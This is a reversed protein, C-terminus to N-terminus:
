RRCGPWYDDDHPWLEGAALWLTALVLGLAVLHGIEGRASCSHGPAAIIQTPALTPFFPAAVAQMLFRAATVNPSASPTLYGDIQYHEGDVSPPVTLSCDSASVCGVQFNLPM